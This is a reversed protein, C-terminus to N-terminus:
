CNYLVYLILKWEGNIKEFGLQSIMGVEILEMQCYFSQKDFYFRNDWGDRPDTKKTKDFFDLLSWNSYNWNSPTIQIVTDCYSYAGVINEFDIHKIQYISDAIFQKYFDVFDQPMNKVDRHLNKGKIFAKVKLDVDEPFSLQKNEERLERAEVEEQEIASTQNETNEVTDVSDNTESKQACSVAMFMILVFAIRIM